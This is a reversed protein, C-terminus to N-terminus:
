PGTGGLSGGRRNSLQTAPGIVHQRGFEAPEFTPRRAQIGAGAVLDLTAM